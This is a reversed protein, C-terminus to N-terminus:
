RQGFLRNREESAPSSDKVSTEMNRVFIPDGYGCPDLPTGAAIVPKTKEGNRQPPRRNERPCGSHAFQGNKFGEKIDYHYCILRSIEDSFSDFGGSDRKKLLHFAESRM